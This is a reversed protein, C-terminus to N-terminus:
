HNVDILTNLKYFPLDIYMSGGHILTVESKGEVIDGQDDYLHNYTVIHDVNVMVSRFIFPEDMKFIDQSDTETASKMKVLLKIWRAM